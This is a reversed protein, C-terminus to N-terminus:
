INRKPVILARCEEFRDAGPERIKPLRNVCLADIELLRKKNYNGARFVFLIFISVHRIKTFIM